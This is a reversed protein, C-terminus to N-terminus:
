KSEWCVHCVKDDEILYFAILERSCRNCRVADSKGNQAQIEKIGFM